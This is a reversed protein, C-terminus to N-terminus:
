IGTIVGRFTGTYDLATAATESKLLLNDGTYDAVGLVIVLGDSKVLATSGLIKTLGLASAPIKNTATGMADLVLTVDKQRVNRQLGAFWDRNLTVASTALDAM